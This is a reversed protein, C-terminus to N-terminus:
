ETGIDSCSCFDKMPWGWLKWFLASIIHSLMRSGQSDSRQKSKWSEGQLAGEEIWRGSLNQFSGFVQLASYLRLREGHHKRWSSPLGKDQYQNLELLDGFHLHPSWSPGGLLSKVWTMTLSNWSLHTHPISLSIITLIYFVNPFLSWSAYSSFACKSTPTWVPRSIM